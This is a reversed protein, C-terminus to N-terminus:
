APRAPTPASRWRPAAGVAVSRPVGRFSACTERSEQDGTPPNTGAPATRAGAPGTGPRRLTRERCAGGVCLVRVMMVKLIEFGADNPIVTASHVSLAVSM